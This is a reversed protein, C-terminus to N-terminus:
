PVASVRWPERVERGIEKGPFMTIHVDAFPQSPLCMRQGKKGPAAVVVPPSSWGLLTESWIRSGDLASTGAEFMPHGLPQQTQRAQRYVPLYM